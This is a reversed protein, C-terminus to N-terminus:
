TVEEEVDAADELLCWQASGEAQWSPDEVEEKGEERGEIWNDNGPANLQNSKAFLEEVEATFNQGSNTTSFTLNFATNDRWWEHM